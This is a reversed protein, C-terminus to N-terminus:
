WKEKNPASPESVYTETPATWWQLRRPIANGGNHSVYRNALYYIVETTTLHGKSTRISHGSAVFDRDIHAGLRDM